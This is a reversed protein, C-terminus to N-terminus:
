RQLIGVFRWLKQDARKYVLTGDDLRRWPTQHLIREYPLHLTENRYRMAPFVMVLVGGPKVIRSLAVCADHYLATLEAQIQELRQRPESGKLPPGLYPETIVADVPGSKIRRDIDRVDAQLLEVHSCDIGTGALWELNRKTDAIARPSADSGIITIYGLLLAEQIMTGSGCFPDLIRASAPQKALNLMIQCLKPPLTGSYMDREPRGFDRRGYEEFDQVAITRALYKNELILFEQCKEKTVIVSSLVPERSTVLRSRVGREALAGKVKMGILSPRCRYFSIGFNIRGASPAALLAAVIPEPTIDEGILEAIKITGGLKNIDVLQQTDTEIIGFLDNVVSFSAGTVARIEAQSLAANNGFIFVLKRM